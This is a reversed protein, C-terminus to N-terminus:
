SGVNYFVHHVVMHESLGPTLSSILADIYNSLWTLSSWRGLKKILDKGLEDLRLAM